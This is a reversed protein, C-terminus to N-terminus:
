RGHGQRATASIEVAAAPTATSAVLDLPFHLISIRWVEGWQQGWM